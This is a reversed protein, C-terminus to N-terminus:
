IQGKKKKKKENALEPWSDQRTVLGTTLLIDSTKILLAFLFNLYFTNQLKIIEKDYFLSCFYIYDIIM